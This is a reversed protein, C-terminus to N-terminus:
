RGQVIRAKSRLGQVLSERMRDLYVDKVNAKVDEFKVDKGPKRDLLLILHYGFQTQVIDSMQFPRLAFAAKSFPEVM